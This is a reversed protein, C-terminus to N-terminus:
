LCDEGMRYITLDKLKDSADSHPLGNKASGLFQFAIYVTFECFRSGRDEGIKVLDDYANDYVGPSFQKVSVCCTHSFPINKDKFYDEVRQRSMGTNLVASFSQLTKAYESEQKRQARYALVHRIGLIVLLVAILAAAVYFRPRRM